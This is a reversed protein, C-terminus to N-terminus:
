LDMKINDVWKRRHTGLQRRGEPKGVLNTQVGRENIHAEHGAWKVRRLKKTRIVNPSSYM